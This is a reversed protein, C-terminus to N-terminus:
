LCNKMVLAKHVTEEWEMEPVSDKTIGGGIYLIAMDDLLQMCRLNVFINSVTKPRSYAHNEVNRKNAKRISTQECNLEGLFGTYYLRDYGEHSEIFTQAAMKPLGCVAPTPHLAQLIDKLNEQELNGSIHTKLHLLNGAKVTQVPAVNLSSIHPKLTEAIYQTVFQQEELEKKGWTVAMSDQYPQTGALAMTSFRANEVKLLTEPTAGLWLGVKPHFWIYVFASEYRNLLNKFIELSKGEKLKVQEQRSLVVKEFQGSQIAEIGKEVLAVHQAKQFSTDENKISSTAIKEDADYITQLRLCDNESFLVTSENSRFPAFVFGTETYRETTVIEPHQQLFGQLEFEHPKRYVVFPLAQELHAQVTEFFVTNTM